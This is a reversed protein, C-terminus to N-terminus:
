PAHAISVARPPAGTARPQPAEPSRCRCATSCTAARWAHSASGGVVHVKFSGPKHTCSRTLAVDPGVCFVLAFLVPPILMFLPRSRFTM